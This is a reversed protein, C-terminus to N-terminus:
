IIITRMNNLFTEKWSPNPKKVCDVFMKIKDNINTFKCEQNDSWKIQFPLNNINPTPKTLGLISNVIINKPNCKNIVIFYYDKNADTNYEKNQIKSFLIKSLTGNNYSKNFDLVYDTYAHVCLSLNGVNDATQTTTSKINVPMNQILLDCWSRIKPVKIDDKFKSKLLIDIIVREDIVSNTRGDETLSSIKFDYGILYEQIDILIQPLTQINLKKFDDVVDM